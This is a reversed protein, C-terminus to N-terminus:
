INIILVNAHAKKTEYGEHVLTCYSRIDSLIVRRVKSFDYRM